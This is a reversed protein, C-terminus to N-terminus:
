ELDPNTEEGQLNEVLQREARQWHELAKGEPRGEDELFQRALAAIVNQTPYLPEQSM